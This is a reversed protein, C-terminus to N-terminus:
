IAGAALQSVGIQVITNCLNFFPCSEFQFVSLHNVGESSGCCGEHYVAKLYAVFLRGTDSIVSIDSNHKKFFIQRSAPIARSCFCQHGELMCAISSINRLKKPAHDPCRHLHVNLNVIDQVIYMEKQRVKIFIRNLINNFSQLACLASVDRCIYIPFRKSTFSKFCQGDFRLLFFFIM